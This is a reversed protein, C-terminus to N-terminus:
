KRATKPKWDKREQRTAMKRHEAQAQEHQEPTILGRRKRAKSISLRRRLSEGNPHDAPIRAAVNELVQAAAEGLAAVAVAETSQGQAKQDYHQNELFAAKREFYDTIGAYITATDLCGHYFKTGHTRVEKLALIIDKLSDHTYTQALTDAMELLDAADPKTPVKVSDVFARLIVVLLKMVTSEGLRHRLQYLKPAQAATVLTLGVSLEALVLRVDSSAERSALERTTAVEVTALLEHEPTAPATSM